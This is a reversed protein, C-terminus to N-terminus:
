CGVSSSVRALFWRSVAQSTTAPKKEPDPALLSKLDERGILGLIEPGWTTPPNSQCAAVADRLPTALGEPLTELLQKDIGVEVMREVVETPSGSRSTLGKFLEIVKTTRPTFKKWYAEAGSQTEDDDLDIHMKSGSFLDALTLFPQRGDGSLCGEVWQYISPPEFQQPPVELGTITALEGHAAIPVTWVM